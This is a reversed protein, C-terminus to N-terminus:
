TVQMPMIVARFRGSLLMVPKANARIQCIVEEDPKLGGLAESLYKGDICVTSFEDLRSTIIETKAAGCQDSNVELHAKGDEFSLVAAKSETATFPVVQRLAAVLSGATTAIEKPSESGLQDTVVTRWPPFSADITPFQAFRRNCIVQVTKSFFRLTVPQESEITAFFSALFDQHIIAKGTGLEPEGPKRAPRRKEVVALRSGDTAVVCFREVSVDICLGRMAPVRGDRKAVAHAVMKASHLLLPGSIDVISQIKWEDEVEKGPVRQNLRYAAEGATVKILNGGSFDFFVDADDAATKAVGSLISLSM